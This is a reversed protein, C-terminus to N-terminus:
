NYTVKGIFIEFFILKEAFSFCNLNTNPSTAAFGRLYFVEM